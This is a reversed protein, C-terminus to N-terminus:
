EPVATWLKGRRLPVVCRHRQPDVLVLMVQTLQLAHESAIEDLREARSLHSSPLALELYYGRDAICGDGESRGGGTRVEMYM